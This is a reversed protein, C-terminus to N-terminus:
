KPSRTSRTADSAEKLRWVALEDYVYSTDCGMCRVEYRGHIKIAVTSGCAKCYFKECFYDKDM